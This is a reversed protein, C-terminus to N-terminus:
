NRRNSFKFSTNNIGNLLEIVENLKVSLEKIADKVTADATITEITNNATVSSGGSDTLKVIRPTDNFIGNSYWGKSTRIEIGAERDSREVVRMDGLKGASLSEVDETGKQSTFLHNLHVYIENLAKQFEENSVRPPVKTSNIIAM